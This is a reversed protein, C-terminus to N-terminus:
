VSFIFKCRENHCHYETKSGEDGARYQTTQLYVRDQKCKPCTKTSRVFEFKHETTVISGKIIDEITNFKKGTTREEYDCFMRTKDSNYNYQQQMRTPSKGRHPAIESDADSVNGRKSM